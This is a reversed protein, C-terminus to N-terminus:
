IMQLCLRPFILNGLNPTSNIRMRMSNSSIMTTFVEMVLIFLYSSIPDGQRIGQKSKFYGVSKSSFNLTFSPSSICAYVWAVYTKPFCMLAIVRVISTWHISDYVKRIDLKLMARPTAQVVGYGKQLEQALLVNDLVNKVLM